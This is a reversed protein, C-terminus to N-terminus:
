RGVVVRALGRPSRRGHRDMGVAAYVRTEGPKAAEDLAAGDNM